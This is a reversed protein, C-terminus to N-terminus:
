DASRAQLIYVSTTGAAPIPKVSVLAMARDDVKVLQGKLPKDVIDTADCIIRVDGVQIQQGDIKDSSYGLVVANVPLETKTVPDPAYPSPDSSPSSAERVLVVVGTAFDLLMEAAAVQMDYYFGSGTAVDDSGQGADSDEFTMELSDAWSTVSFPVSGFM